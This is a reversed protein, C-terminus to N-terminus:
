LIGLVSPDAALARLREAPNVVLKREALDILGAMSTLDAALLGDPRRFEQRVQFTKGAGFEFKCSVDIEDGGHLERRFKV